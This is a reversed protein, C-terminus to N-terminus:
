LLYNMVADFRDGRLSEPAEHWIEGGFLCGFKRGEHCFSISALFDSDKIEEAVDLAYSDVRFDIWYQAADLLYQRMGPNGVNLKPLAAIGWWADYNLPTEADPPYPALPFSSSFGIWTPRTTAMKWCMTFPGFAAAPMTLSAMWSWVCIGRIYSM